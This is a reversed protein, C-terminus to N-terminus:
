KVDRSLSKLLWVGATIAVLLATPLGVLFAMFGAFVDQRALWMWLLLSSFSLIIVFFSAVRAARESYTFDLTELFMWALFALFIAGVIFFIIM